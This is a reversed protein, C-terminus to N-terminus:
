VVLIPASAPVCPEAAPGAISQVSTFWTFGTASHRTIETASDPM